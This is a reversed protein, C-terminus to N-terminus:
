GNFFGKLDCCFCTGKDSYRKFNISHGCEDIECSCFQFKNDKYMYLLKDQTITMNPIYKELYGECENDIVKLAKFIQGRSAMLDSGLVIYPIVNVWCKYEEMFQKVSFSRDIIANCVPKTLITNSVIQLNPFMEKILKLNNLMLQESENTRFRGVLDYSTTFKLRPMLDNMDVFKLFDILPTINDYILNTNIYLLDIIDINMRKVIEIFFDGLIDDDSPKDFIEGGCILIHSGDIFKDSDIFSITEKLIMARTEHDYLRPNERQFCFSCNNSCNDWVLFEYIPKYNM